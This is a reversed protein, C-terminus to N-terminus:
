PPIYHNQNRVQDFDYCNPLAGTSDIKDLIVVLSKFNFQMTINFQTFLSFETEYLYLFGINDINALINTSLKYRHGFDTLETWAEYSTFLIDSINYLNNTLNFVEEKDRNYKQLTPQLFRVVASLDGGFMRDSGSLNHIIEKSM